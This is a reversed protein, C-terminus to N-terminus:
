KRKEIIHLEKKAVLYANRADEETSFYGLHVSKGNLRIQALFKNNAKNFYYGKANTNFLNEQHTVLRLNEINNNLRTKDIHDIHLGDAIEGNHYIYILRHSLYWKRKIMIHRYGTKDLTGAEEDALAKGHRKFRNFLKGERYYFLEKLLEQTIKEKNV